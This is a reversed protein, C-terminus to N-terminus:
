DSQSLSCKEKLAQRKEIAELSFLCYAAAKLFFASNLEKPNEEM